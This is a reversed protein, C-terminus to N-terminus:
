IRVRFVEPFTVEAISSPVSTGTDPADFGTLGSAVVGYTACTEPGPPEASQVAVTETITGGGGPVTM